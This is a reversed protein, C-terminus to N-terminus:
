ERFSARGGGTGGTYRAALSWLIYYGQYSPAHSRGSMQDLTTNTNRRKRNMLADKPQRRM